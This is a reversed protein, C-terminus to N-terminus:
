WDASRVIMLVLGNPGKLSEFTRMAGNQDPATFVPLRSGVAPGPQSREAGQAMAVPLIGWLVVGVGYGLWKRYNL